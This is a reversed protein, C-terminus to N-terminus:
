KPPPFDSLLFASAPNLVKKMPNSRALRDDMIGRLIATLLEEEFELPETEIEPAAAFIDAGQFVPAALIGQLCLCLILVLLLIRSSTQM